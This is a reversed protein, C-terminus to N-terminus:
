DVDRCVEDVIRLASTPIRLLHHGRVRGVLAITKLAIHQLSQAAPMELGPLNSTEQQIRARTWRLQQLSDINQSETQNGTLWSQPPPPGPIRRLRVPGRFHSRTSRPLPLPLSLVERVSPPLSGTLAERSTTRANTRRSERLLDNVTSTSTSSDAKALTSSSSFTTPTSSSPKILLARQQRKKPM